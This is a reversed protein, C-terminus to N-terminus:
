SKLNKNHETGVHLLHNYMNNVEGVPAKGLYGMIENFLSTPIAIVEVAKTEEIVKAEEVPKEKLIADKTDKTGKAM